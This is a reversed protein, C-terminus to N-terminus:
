KYYEKTMELYSEINGVDYMKGKPIFIFNDFANSYNNLIETFPIECDSNNKSFQYMLELIEPDLIYEGFAAYYEKEQKGIDSIKPKELIKNIKKTKEDFFFIGYNEIKEKAVPCVSVLPTYRKAYANLLQKTCSINISSKYFQDGLVLLFYENSIFQKAQLIANGLGKAHSQIIFTINEKYKNDKFFSKYLKQQEKTIILCINSIGADILEEILLYFMPVLKNKKVIPIFGKPIVNTFPRMRSGLGALPIVAKNIDKTKNINLPYANMKYTEKLYKILKKQMKEDKAIFQISGDGGSGVGKGGYTVTKIYKDNLLKHLLPASLEELCMISVYKDFLKQTDSMLKGLEKVKGDKLLCTAKEVIKTNMKGFYNIINKENKNKPFPYISNLRSLIKKTDKKGNLDVYVIHLDCGVEIKKINIEDNKFEMLSTKSEYAVIQDMKGCMSGINREAEYSIKMYDQYSMNLKYIKDYAKCILVCIAASSSLGKKELLTNKYIELNM